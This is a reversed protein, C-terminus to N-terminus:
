AVDKQRRLRNRLVERPKNLRDYEKPRRKVARPEFRGPRDPVLRLKLEPIGHVADALWRVADIFSIRDVPENQRQAAELMVMRVLNYVLAYMTLEKQVGEVTKCHLVDMKLTQKLHRFNTEIQWRQRYLEAVDAKPYRKPDLLSTAITVVRTRRGPVAITYRLERVVLAEPLAAYQEATLWVPRQKPKPYEVLQDHKGLRQLWRSTPLGKDGRKRSKTSVTRRHPRFDVIQKQHARFVGFVQRAALLALHAFSCFARDGVLVDGAALEPHLQGIRSMDHTRLPACAVNLLFGTTAHFMALVHMVPFGCGPAQRGPQGFAEQLAPTDPMSLSSGDTLFTRHGHWRGEDLMASGRLHQRIFLLLTRLVRLPLRARAQCYAEGTCVVAGLRPVHPCATNGYVIQLIFLHVTTVPDLVRERWTHGVAQCVSRIHDATLFQALESKIQTVAALISRAM